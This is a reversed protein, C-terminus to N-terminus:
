DTGASLVEICLIVSNIVINNAGTVNSAYIGFQDNIAMGGIFQNISGSYNNTDACYHQFKAVLTGGIIENSGNVTPNKYCAFELQQAASASSFNVQMNIRANTTPQDQYQLYYTSHIGFFSNFLDATYAANLQTFTNTHAIVVTGSGKMQAMLPMYIRYTKGSTNKTKLTNDSDCFLIASTIPTGYGAAPEAGFQIVGGNTVGTVETMGPAGVLVIDEPRIPVGFEVENPNDINIKISGGLIRMKTALGAANLDIGNVGDDFIDMNSVTVTSAATPTISSCAISGSVTTAHTTHNSSIEGHNLALVVGSHPNVTNVQLVAGSGQCDVIHTNNDTVIEGTNISVQVSSYPNINNTLVNVGAAIHDAAIESNAAGALSPQVSDFIFASNLVEIATGSHQHLKNTQIINNCDVSQSGVDVRLVNGGVNILTGSQPEVDNARLQGTIHTINLSNDTSITGGVSVSNGSIPTITNCRLTNAIDVRTHAHDSVLESNVTVTSALDPTISDVQISPAKLGDPFSVTPNLNPFVNDVHADIATIDSLVVPGIFTTSGTVAVNGGVVIGGLGDYVVNVTGLSLEPTEVSRQSRLTGDLTAFFVNEGNVKEYTYQM